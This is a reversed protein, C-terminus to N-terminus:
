KTLNGDIVLYGADDKSIDSKEIHYYKDSTIFPYSDVNLMVGYDYTGAAKMGSTFNGDKTNDYKSGVVGNIYNTFATANVELTNNLDTDNFFKTVNGDLTVAKSMNSNATIVLTTNENYTFGTISTGSIVPTLKSLKLAYSANTNISDDDNNEIGFLLESGQATINADTLGVLSMASINAVSTNNADTTNTDLKIANNLSVNTVTSVNFDATTGDEVAKDFKASEKAFQSAQKDINKVSAVIQTATMLPKPLAKNLEGLLQGFTASGNTDVIADTLLIMSNQAKASKLLQAIMRGQNELKVDAYDDKIQKVLGDFSTNFARAVKNMARTKNGDFQMALTTFPNAIIDGDTDVLETDTSVDITPALGTISDIGGSLSVTSGSESVTAGNLAGKAAYGTAGTSTTFAGTGTSSTTNTSGTSSSGCGVFTTAITAAAAVSMLIKKNMM